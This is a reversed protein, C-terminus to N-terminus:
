CGSSTSSLNPMADRLDRQDCNEKLPNTCIQEKFIEAIQIIKKKSTKASM